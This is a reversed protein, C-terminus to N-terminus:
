ADSSSPKLWESLGKVSEAIAEISKRPFYSNVEKFPESCYHEISGGSSEGVQTWNYRLGMEDSFYDLIQSKSVPEASFLSFAKPEEGAGLALCVQALERAGIYDRVFDRGSIEVVRNALTANALETLFYNGNRIFLPGAYSFIRLDSVKVGQGRLVIHSKEQLMKSAAYSDGLPPIAHPSTNKFPRGSSAGFVAGSSIFIYPRDFTKSWECALADLDFKLDKGRHDPNREHGGILNVVFSLDRAELAHSYDVLGDGRAPHRSFGVVEHGSGQLEATLEQGILGTSGFLGVKM